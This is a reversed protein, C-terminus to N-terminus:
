STGYIFDVSSIQCILRCRNDKEASPAPPLNQGSGSLYQPDLPRACWAGSVASIVGLPRVRLYQTVSQFQLGFRTTHCPSPRESVFVM